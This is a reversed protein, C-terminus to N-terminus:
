DTGFQRKVRLLADLAALERRGLEDLHQRASLDLDAHIAFPRPAVVDEHLAEPPCDFILLDVQPGIGADRFGAGLDSSIKAEVIATPRM